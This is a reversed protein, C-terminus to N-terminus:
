SHGRKILTASLAAHDSLFQHQKQAHIKAQQVIFGRTYIRDLKLIPLWAPFSKAHAGSDSEFVEALHCRKAFNRGAQTTWDNFDGAIILPLNNPIHTEIYEAIASLQAHRWRAFLGLHICIVHLEEAWDPPSIVAHLMGRKEIKHASIDHNKMLKIPFKSLIANGHHGDQYEANKGYVTHPWLSQSLFNLQGLAPWAAFKKHHNHHTDQVEQLFIIDAHASQLLERQLHLTLHSNLPNFGKHINFTTIRLTNRM